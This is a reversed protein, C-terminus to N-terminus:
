NTGQLILLRGIHTHFYNHNILERSMLFCPNSPSAGRNRIAKGGRPSFNVHAVPVFWFSLAQSCYFFMRAQSSLINTPSVATNIISLVTSKNCPTFHTIWAWHGAEYGRCQTSISLQFRFDVWPPVFILRFDVWPPAFIRFDFLVCPFNFALILGPRYALILFSQGFNFRKIKSNLM